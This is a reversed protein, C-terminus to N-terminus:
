PAGRAELIVRDGVIRFKSVEYESSYENIYGDLYGRLTRFGLVSNFAADAVKAGRLSATTVQIKRPDGDPSSRVDFDANLYRGSFGLKSIPISVQVHGVSNAISVFAKGRSKRNAAILQNIDGATFEITPNEAPPKATAAPPTSENPAPAANRNRVTNEFEDWRQLIAQQQSESTPVQPLQRPATSTFVRRAGIYGGVIFTVTLLLFFIVLILCGKGLCCGLGRKPQPPPELV